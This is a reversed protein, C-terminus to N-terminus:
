QWNGSCLYEKSVALSKCVMDATLKWTHQYKLIRFYHCVSSNSLQLSNLSDRGIEIKLTPYITVFVEPLRPKKLDSIIVIWKGWSLVCHLAPFFFILIKFCCLRWRWFFIVIHFKVLQNQLQSHIAPQKNAELVIDGTLSPFCCDERPIKYGFCIWLVQEIIVSPVSKDATM